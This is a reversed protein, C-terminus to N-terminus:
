TKAPLGKRALTASLGITALAARQHELRKRADGQMEDIHRGVVIETTDRAITIHKGVKSLARDVISNANTPASMEFGDGHLPEYRRGIRKCVLRFLGRGSSRPGCPVGTAQELEVWSVRAGDKLTTVYATLTKIWARRQENPKIIM